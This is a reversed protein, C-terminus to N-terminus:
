RIPRLTRRELSRLAAIVADACADPSDTTTDCAVVRKGVVPALARWASLQRAVEDRSIEGCRNYIADVSGDAVVVCDSRPIFRGLFRAVPPASVSLRYRRPDVVQDFWGREVLLVGRRRARRWPGLSGIWFDVLIVLLKVLSLGTSRAPNGHPDRVPSRDMPAPRLIGPRPNARRVPVGSASLKGAIAMAITSKGSGDPGVVVCIGHLDAVDPERSGRHPRGLANRCGPQGM